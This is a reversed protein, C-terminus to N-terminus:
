QRDKPKIYNNLLGNRSKYGSTIILCDCGRHRKFVESDPDTYTGALSECWPCTKRGRTKRVVTPHKNLDNALNMADRQATGAIANIFADVQQLVKDRGGTSVSDSTEKAMGYYINEDVGQAKTGDPLEFDFANMDFIQNYMANGVERWLIEQNMQRVQPAIEPNNIIDMLKVVQDRIDKGLDAYNM